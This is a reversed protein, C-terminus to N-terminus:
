GLLKNDQTNGEINNTRELLVDVVDPNEVLYSVYKKSLLNEAMQVRQKVPILYYKLKKELYDQKVLAHETKKDNPIAQIGKLEELVALVKRQTQAKFSLRTYENYKNM